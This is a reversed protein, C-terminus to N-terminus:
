IVKFRLKISMKCNCVISHITKYSNQASYIQLSFLYSVGFGFIFFIMFTNVAIFRFLTHKVYITMYLLLIKILALCVFMAAALRRMILNMKYIELSLSNHENILNFFFKEKGLLIRAWKGNPNFKQIQNNLQDFRMKFYTFYIYMCCAVTAFTYFVLIYLILMVFSHIFWYLRKSSIAILLLFSPTLLVYLLPAYNLLISITIRSLIALRKYNKVTLQHLPKLDFTLFHFIKFADLYGNIEALLHDTKAIAGLCLALLIVFLFTKFHDPLYVTDALSWLEPSILLLFHWITALWTIMCILLCTKFRKPNKSGNYIEDFDVSFLFWKKITYSLTPISSKMQFYENLKQKSKAVKDKIKDKILSM